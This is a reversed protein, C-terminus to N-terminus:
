RLSSVIRLAVERYGANTLHDTTGDQFALGDSSVLVASPDGAVFALEASRVAANSPLDLVRIVVILLAPNNNERRIRAVLERLDDLYRPNERDSEGQWWVVADVPQHLTNALIPWLVPPQEDPRWSAIPRGGQTSDSLVAQPYVERLFPAVNVANSQGAVVLPLTPTVATSPTPAEPALPAAACACMGALLIAAFVSRMRCDVEVDIGGRM